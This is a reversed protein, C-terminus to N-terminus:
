WPKVGRGFPMCQPMAWPQRHLTQLEKRPTEGKSVQELIHTIARVADLMLAQHKALQRDRSTVTPLRAKIVSDLRPCAIANINTAGLKEKWMRRTKNPVAASFHTSMFKETKESIKYVKSSLEMEAEDEPEIAWFIESEMDTM